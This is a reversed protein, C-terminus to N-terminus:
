EQLRLLLIMERFILRIMVRQDIKRWNYHQVSHPRDTSQPIVDTLDKQCPNQRTWKKQPHMSEKKRTRSTHTKNPLNQHLLALVPWLPQHLILTLSLQPILINM